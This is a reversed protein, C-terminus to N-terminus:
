AKYQVLLPLIAEPCHFQVTRFLSNRVHEVLAIYGFFSSNTVVRILKALSAKLLEDDYTEQHSDLIPKLFEYANDNALLMAIESMEMNQIQQVIESTTEGKLSFALSILYTINTQINLCYNARTSIDIDAYDESKVNLISGFLTSILEQENKYQTLPTFASPTLRSDFKKFLSDANSRYIDIDVGARKLGYKSPALHTVIDGSNIINFISRYNADISADFGQPTEFLYAYLNSESIIQNDILYVSLLDCIAASRSYGTIWLKLNNAQEYKDLYTTLETLVRNVSVEFGYANSSEGINLNSEWQKTYATGCATLAIIDENDMERHALTFKISEKTEPLDFDSSYSIDDFGFSQYFDAMNEKSSSNINSAFSIIALDKSFSTSEHKFSLKNLPIKYDIDFTNGNSDTFLFTSFKLDYKKVSKPSPNCGILLTPLLLLTLVKNKM